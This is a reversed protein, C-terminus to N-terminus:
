GSIKFFDNEHDDNPHLGLASGHGLGQHYRSCELHKHIRTDEATDPHKKDPYEAKDPYETKDPYEAKDPHEAKDPNQSIKIAQGTLPWGGM